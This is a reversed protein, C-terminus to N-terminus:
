AARRTLACREFVDCLAGPALARGAAFAHAPM